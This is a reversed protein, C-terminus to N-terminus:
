RSFVGYVKKGYDQLEIIRAKFGASKLSKKKREAQFKDAVIYQCYYTEGNFKRSLQKSM